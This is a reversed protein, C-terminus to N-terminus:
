AITHTLPLNWKQDSVFFANHDFWGNERQQALTWELNLRAAKRYREDKVLHHLELLSWATRVDYAHVVTETEQESRRWSGEPSQVTLLWNGARIAADLYRQSKTETYARCWGLIVQGTNFVAPRPNAAEGRYVGAQVAGYP